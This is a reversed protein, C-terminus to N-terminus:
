PREKSPKLEKVMLPVMQDAVLVHVLTPDGSYEVKGSALDIRGRALGFRTYRAFEWSRGSVERSALIESLLVLAASDEFGRFILEHGLARPDDSEPTVDVAIVALIKKDVFFLM